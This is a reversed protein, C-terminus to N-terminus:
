QVGSAASNAGLRGNHTVDRPSQQFVQSCNGCKFKLETNRRQNAPAGATEFSSIFNTLGGDGDFSIKRIADRCNTNGTLAHRKLWWFKCEGLPGALLILAFKDADLDAPIAVASGMPDLAKPSWTIQIEHDDSLTIGNEVAAVAHAAEHYATAEIALYYDDDKFTERNSLKFGFHLALKDLQDVTM